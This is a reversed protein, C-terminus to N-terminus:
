KRLVLAEWAYPDWFRNALWPEVRKAGIDYLLAYEERSPLDAINAATPVRSVYLSAHLSAAHLWISHVLCSHDFEKAVGKLTCREAGVNDSWVLVKRNRLADGFTCLGLAIALIELGMIQADSRVCFLQVLEAPPAFDAWLVVGDIFLVAGLRPPAGRADVFLHATGARRHVM